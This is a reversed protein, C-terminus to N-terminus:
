ANMRWEGVDPANSQGVLGDDNVQICTLARMGPEFEGQPEGLLEIGM